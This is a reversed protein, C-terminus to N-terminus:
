SVNIHFPSWSANDAATWSVGDFARIQLSDGISGAVFSTQAFQAATIDIVTSASQTQGNVSFHGSNPDGTSDWLQYRTMTDGDPDNVSVFGSLALTDGQHAAQDAITLTPATYSTVNVNFPAWSANDGASWDMGDFARIQLSDSVTGTVFSTQALQAATVDIVTGAAQAVNNIVFHGSNPDRGSDWLQYKTMSDGDADTVSFLSSLALTRGHMPTKTQTSIAPANNSVSLNFAAWSADDAASWGSGDFARIQLTDAVTGTFFSTQALQAATIDIITGAAKDVGGVVFHGSNPDRTSDWLQYKTIADNDADNVSFLSSLAVSQLHAKTVNNTTVVPAHNVPPSIVFTAWAATDAASWLAGDFARIQLSDATSGTVFSTQALQGATIDIITGAAKDVGGVVFHGSNPDRSGDWLQYRTMTDGDIDNVTFLSSLALTQGATRTLDLTTVTPAHNVPPSVTFPSWSANDAASWAIGDFARIQLNDGASGTIFSTQGVQAATIDIVTGAAKAVGGVTWYGSNPNISGDYLQYRTITDSDADSVTILSTLARTQGAPVSLNATAVIPATNQVLVSFTKWVGPDPASWLVGDFVRVQIDDKVTGAVFALGTATSPDTFQTANIDIVTGAAQVVGNLVFHGSNPDATTDVLQYQYIQNGTYSNFSTTSFLSSALVTSNRALPSSTPQVTPPVANTNTSLLQNFPAWAANDAASWTYGDYARIQLSDAVTGPVFFTQAIQSATVDIITRAAQIVNNVVWYGSNPDTTGDWLQYRTIPDGDPDNVNFWYAYDSLLYHEYPLGIMDHSNIVPAHNVPVSITFPAWSATDGASWALGDFARIQLADNVTGTVFTTQGLQAATVTIITGAAQAVGNIEFHGSSSDRTADWLQYRTMSDGDADSVTFLSSLSLTQRYQKSLNTTSLVPATNITPGAVFPAWAANDGASWMNGDYARIQLNDSVSGGVFSTQGLQAASVNIINGAAQVQGNIVFYGSNPNNNGDWLQYATIADGTLDIATFLSSLAVSQGATVRKDATTVVPGILQVTQDSFKAYEVNTLTSTGYPGAIKVTHGIYSITYASRAYSYGATDTGTGGDITGGESYLTDDGGGGNLIDAGTYGDLVNNGADGTLVDNFQTGLLNEISIFTVTGGSGGVSQPNPNSLDATVGATQGGTLFSVWDIGGGGNFINTGSGSDFFDNGAGGILTINGSFVPGNLYFTLKNAAGLASGNITLSNGSTVLSPGADFWYNYGAGLNITEVNVAFNSHHNTDIGGTLNITDNGSGGDVLGFNGDAGWNSINFTDDGSYGALGILPTGTWNFTDDGGFFLSNFANASLINNFATVLSVSFGSWTQNSNRIGTITGGTPQYITQGGQTSTTYTFGTGTFTIGNAVITTDTFSSILLTGSSFNGQIVSNGAGSGTVITM